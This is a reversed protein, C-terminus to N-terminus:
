FLEAEGRDVPSRAVPGRGPREGAQALAQELGSEVATGEARSRGAEASAALQAVDRLLTELADTRRRARDVLQTTLDRFQLGSVAGNVAAEVEEALRHLKQVSQAVEGNAMGLESMVSEVHLRADHTVAMDHSALGDIVEETVRIEKAMGEIRDRIQQSFASTRNSLTRVEDAVVAFGRGAEGARAAEIAANLALLNTQRSIAEIEGLIGTIEGIQGNLHAMKQVLDMAAQSGSVAHDVLQRLTNSTELVFSEFHSPGGNAGGGGRTAAVALEQQHRTQATIADFSANLSAVADALLGDIQGLEGRTEGTQRGAEASCRGMLGALARHDVVLSAIGAREAALRRALAAAKGRAYWWWTAATGATGALVGALPREAGLVAGIAAFVATAALAAVLNAADARRSPLEPSTM